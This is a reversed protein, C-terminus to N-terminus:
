SGELKLTLRQGEFLVVASDSKIEIVEAGAVKDGIKHLEVQGGPLNFMAQSFGPEVVTGALKAAFTAKAAPGKVGDFLPRRFDIAWVPRFSELPPMENESGGDGYAPLRTGSRSGDVVGTTQLPWFVAVAVSVACAVGLMVSAVLLSQKIRYHNM